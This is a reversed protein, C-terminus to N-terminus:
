VKTHESNWAVSFILRTVIKKEKFIDGKVPVWDSAVEEEEM